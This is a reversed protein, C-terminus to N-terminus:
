REGRTKTELEVGWHELRLRVRGQFLQGQDSGSDRMRPGQTVQKEAAPAGKLKLVRTSGWFSGRLGGGGLSAMTEEFYTEFAKTNM